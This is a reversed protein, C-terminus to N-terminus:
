YVLVLAVSKQVTAVTAGPAIAPGFQNLNV